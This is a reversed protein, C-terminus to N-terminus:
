KFRSRPIELRRPLTVAVIAQERGYDWERQYDILEM